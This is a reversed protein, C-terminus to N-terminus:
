KVTLADEEILIKRIYDISEKAYKYQNDFGALELSLYGDFGVKKLSRVLENWDIIGQGVPLQYVALGDADRIHVHFIKEGLKYVSWPLYERQMLQWATDFNTGFADSKIWDFARLMADTTGVIVNAHGELAFRMNTEECMKVIKGLSDLYRNWNGTADFDEPIEM